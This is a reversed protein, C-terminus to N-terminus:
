RGGPTRHERYARLRDAESQWKRPRGGRRPKRVNEHEMHPLGLFQNEPQECGSKIRTGAYTETRDSEGLIREANAARYDALTVPWRCTASGLQAQAHAQIACEASCCWVTLKRDRKEGFGAKFRLKTLLGPGKCSGSDSFRVGAEEAQSGLDSICSSPLGCNHCSRSSSVARPIPSEQAAV